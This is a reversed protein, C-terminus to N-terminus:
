EVAKNGTKPPLIIQPTTDFKQPSLIEHPVHGVSILHSSFFFVVLLLSMYKQNLQDSSALKCIVKADVLRM